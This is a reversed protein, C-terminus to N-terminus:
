AFAPPGTAPPLLAAFDPVPVHWQPVPAEPAPAPLPAAALAPPAAPLAPFLLVGFPCPAPAPQHHGNGHHSASPAPAVGFCPVITPMGATGPAVMMGAPIAARILLAVLLLGLFPRRSSGLRTDVGV